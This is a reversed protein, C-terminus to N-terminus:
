NRVRKGESDKFNGLIIQFINYLWIIGPVIGFTIWGLCITTGLTLLGKGINGVYFHPFGVYGLFFQLLLTVFFSKRSKEEEVKKEHYHIHVQQANPHIPPHITSQGSYGPSAVGGGKESEETFIPYGVGYSSSLENISDVM